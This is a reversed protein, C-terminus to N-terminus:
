HTRKVDHPALEVPILEVVNVTSGIGFTRHIFQIEHAQDQLLIGVGSWYDRSDIFNSFTLFDFHSTSVNKTFQVCLIFEIHYSCKM